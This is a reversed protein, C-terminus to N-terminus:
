KAAKPSPKPQGSTSSGSSAAGRCRRPTPHSVRRWASSVRMAPASSTAMPANPAHVSTSGLRHLATRARVPAEEGLGGARPREEVEAGADEHDLVLRVDDGQREFRPASRAARTRRSGRTRSAPATPHPPGTTLHRRARFRPRAGPDGGPSTGRHAAAAEALSLPLHGALPGDRPLAV